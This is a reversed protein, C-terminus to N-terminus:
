GEGRLLPSNRPVLLGPPTEGLLAALSEWAARTRPELQRWGISFDDTTDSGDVRFTVSQANVSCLLGRLVM